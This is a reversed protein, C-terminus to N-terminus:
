VWFMKRDNTSKKKVECIRPIIGFDEQFLLIFCFMLMYLNEQESKDALKQHM